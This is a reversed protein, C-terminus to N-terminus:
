VSRADNRSAFDYSEANENGGIRIQGKPTLLWDKDVVAGHQSLLELLDLQQKRSLAHEFHIHTWTERIVTAVMRDQPPDTPTGIQRDPHYRQSKLESLRDLQSLLRQIASGQRKPFDNHLIQQELKEM